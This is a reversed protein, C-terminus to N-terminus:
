WPIEMLLQWTPMLMALPYPEDVPNATPETVNTSLVMVLVGTPMMVPQDVVSEIGVALLRIISFTMRLLTGM